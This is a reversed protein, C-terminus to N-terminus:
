AFSYPVVEHCLQIAYYDIAWISIGLVLVFMIFRRYFREKEAIVLSPLLLIVFFLFLFSIRYLWFSFLCLPLLGIGFLVILAESKICLRLSHDAKKVAPLTLIWFVVALIITLVLTRRGGGPVNEAGQLYSSYQGALDSHYPAFLAFLCLTVIMLFLLLVVKLGDSLRKSQAFITLPYLLLGLVAINHFGWAIAIYFLFKFPENRLSFVASLLIFGMAVSQRMLNFSMPYFVLTYVLIGIYANNKLQKSCAVFVPVVAFLEIAFLYASFSHTFNCTTWCLIKYLPAWSSFAGESYFQSFTAAQASFFSTIGYGSTDTGVYSSRFAAFLCLVVISLGFCLIFGLVSREKLRGGYWTLLTSIASVGFYFLM